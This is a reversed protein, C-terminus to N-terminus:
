GADDSNHSSLDNLAISVLSAVVIAMYFVGAIAEMYALFRALHSIPLIDGYGLTTLTVFSYYAVQPFAERWNRFEIGTFAAPDLILLALYLLTWILGLLLYLSLSGVIRNADVRGGTFLVQVAAKRLAALFYILLLALTLTDFLPSARFRNLVSLVLVLGMLAYVLRRWTLDPDLSKISLLLMAVIVLTFLDEGWTGPFERAMASSFLIVGLAICLYFFNNERTLRKM